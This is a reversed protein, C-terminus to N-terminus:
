RSPPSSIFSVTSGLAVTTVSLGTSFGRMSLKSQGGVGDWEWRGAEAAPSLDM